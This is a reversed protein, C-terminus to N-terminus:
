RFALEYSFSGSKVTFRTGVGIMTDSGRYVEVGPRAPRYDGIWFTSSRGAYVQHAGWRLDVFRMYTVSVFLTIAALSALMVLATIKACRLV